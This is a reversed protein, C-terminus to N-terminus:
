SFPGVRPRRRHAWYILALVAFVVIVDDVGFWPPPYLIDRLRESM